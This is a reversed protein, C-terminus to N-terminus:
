FTLISSKTKCQLFPITLKTLKVPISKKYNQHVIFVDQMGSSFVLKQYVLTSTGPYATIVSWHHDNRVQLLLTYVHTPQKYIVHHNRNLHTLMCCTTSLLQWQKLTKQMRSLSWAHVYCIIIIIPLIITISYYSPPVCNESVPITDPLILERENPLVCVMMNNYM